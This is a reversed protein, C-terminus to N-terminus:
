RQCGVAVDDDDGDVIPKPDKTLAISLLPFRIYGSKVFLLHFTEQVHVASGRTPDWTVKADEVLYGGQVPYLFINLHM